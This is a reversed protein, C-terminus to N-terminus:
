FVDTICDVMLSLSIATWHMAFKDCNVPASQGVQAAIEPLVACEM